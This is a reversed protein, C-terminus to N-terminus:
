NKGTKFKWTYSEALNNSAADKIASGPIYVQYWTLSAKKSNTSIYIHNGSIWITAKCKQGTKLNKIYVKSWNVSKLVNESLRISITRTRSVGTSSSTPSIASVKPVTKDITYKVTYVPSKNGAVDVAFFKLTHTSTIIFAGAYKKSGTTPTLGNLTYYITGEENMKLVVNKNTNYNGGKVSASATPATTDPNKVTIYCTKTSIDNFQGTVTLKVMYTGAKVYKHAPNEDTSTSGDGFSWNMSVIDGTSTNTFQITGNVTISTTNVSFAANPTPYVNSPANGTFQCLNVAIYGNNYIAGGYTTATNNLFTINISTLNGKFVVSSNIISYVNTNFIAGGYYATNNAFIGDSVNLIGRNSVAGGWHSTNNLFYSGRIIANGKSVNSNTIDFYAENDIAGGRNGASNGTFTSTDINLTGGNAIAGGNGASNNFFTGNIVTLNGEFVSGIYTYVSNVIAGGATGASNNIFTGNIVTLIGSNSVASGSNGVANNIFVSNTIMINGVIFTNGCIGNNFYIENAIAGGATGAYNNTFKSGEIKLNGENFIAGGSNSVTNNAFTSNIITLNGNNVITGGWTANGGRFTLNHITVNLGSAISFISGQEQADLITNEQSQGMITMNTKINIGHENYTGNEIYVTGGSTVIGTANTITFKPGNTGTTYNASQGDWSDNGHTSVYIISTDAAEVASFGGFFLLVLGIFMLITILRNTNNEDTKM